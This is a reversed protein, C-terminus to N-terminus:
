NSEQPVAFGARALKPMPNFALVRYPEKDDALLVIFAQAAVTYGDTTSAMLDVAIVRNPEVKLYQQAPGVAFALREADVMPRRRMELFTDLRADDFLPLARIVAIPATVPNVTESGYVTVLPAMAAVWEPQMGAIGALQRIDTFPATVAPAAAAPDAKAAGAQRKPANAASTGKDKDKDKDKSGRREVIRSAVIQADDDDAGVYRLVSALLEVPAKGIDIRGGEDSLRIRVSGTSLEITTSRETLPAQRVNGAIGAAAELGASLLADAQERDRDIVIIGTLGRFTTAAAMALVSCFAITWLVAILVMGRQAERRSM